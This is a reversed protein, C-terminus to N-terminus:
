HGCQWAACLPKHRRSPETRPWQGAAKADIGIYRFHFLALAAAGARNKAGRDALDLFSMM